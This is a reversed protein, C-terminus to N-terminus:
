FVQLYLPTITGSAVNGTITITHSSSWTVATPTALIPLAFSYDTKWTDTSFGGPCTGDCYGAGVAIVSQATQSGVDNCYMYQFMEYQGSAGSSSALTLVATGDVKMRLGNSAWAGANNHIAFTIRYCAGSALAPVSSATFIVVDSGTMTVASGKGQTSNYSSGGPSHFATWASGNSYCLVKTSGSGTTCDTDSAGDSVGFIRYANSSATPLTAVTVAPPVIGNTFTSQANLAAALLILLLIKM